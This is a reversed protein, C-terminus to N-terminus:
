LAETPVTAHVGSPLTMLPERSAVARSHSEVLPLHRATMGAPIPAEHTAAEGSPLRSAMPPLSLTIRSHSAAPFGSRSIM